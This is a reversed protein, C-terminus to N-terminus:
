GAETELEIEPPMDELLPYRPVGAEDCLEDLM